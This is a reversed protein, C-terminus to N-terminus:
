STPAGISEWARLLHPHDRTRHIGMESAETAKSDEGNRSYGTAQLRYGTAQLRYGTHNGCSGDRGAGRMHEGQNNLRVAGPRGRKEVLGGSTLHVAAGESCVMPDGVQVLLQVQHQM